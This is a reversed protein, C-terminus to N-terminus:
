EEQKEEVAEETEEEIEEAEKKKPKDKKKAPKGEVKEKEVPEEVEEEAQEDVEEKEAPEEVKIDGVKKKGEEIHLKAIEVIKIPYIKKLADKMEKRLKGSILDKILNDLSIKSLYEIVFKSAAKSLSAAVSGKVKNIPVMLPKIRVRKNDSTKCIFSIEIKQKGRRVLRRISAASLYYGYIETTANEGQIKKISFRLNTNQKKIDRTLAMLNVTISRGVLSKTETVPIVGLLESNFYAPAIIQVWKKKKIKTAKEEAM